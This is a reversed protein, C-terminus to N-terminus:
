GIGYLGMFDWEIGDLGMRAMWDRGIWGIADQSDNLGIM